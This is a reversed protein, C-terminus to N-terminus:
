QILQQYPVAQKKAQQKIEAILDDPLRMSIPRM